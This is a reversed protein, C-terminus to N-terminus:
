EGSKDDEEDADFDEETTIEDDEEDEDPDEDEDSEEDDCDEDSDEEDDEDACGYNVLEEFTEFDNLYDSIMTEAIANGVGGCDRLAVQLDEWSELVDGDDYPSGFLYIAFTLVYSEPIDTKASLDGEGDVEDMYKELASYKIEAVVADVEAYRGNNALDSVHEVQELRELEKVLVKLFESKTM